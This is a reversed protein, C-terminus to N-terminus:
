VHDGAPAEAIRLNSRDGGLIFREIAAAFGDDDNGDTIFDAAAQVEPSANGM